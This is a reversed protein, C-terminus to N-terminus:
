LTFDFLRHDRQLTCGTKAETRYVLECNKTIALNNIFPLAKHLNRPSFGGSNARRFRSLQHHLKLPNLVEVQLVTIFTPVCISRRRNSRELHTTSEFRYM